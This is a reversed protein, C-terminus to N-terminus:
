RSPYVADIIPLLSSPIVIGLHKATRNNLSFQPNELYHLASSNQNQQENILEGLQKGMEYYNPYLSFLIGRKVDVPSHSFSTIGKDWTNEIYYSILSQRGFSLVDRTIWIADTDASSQEIIEKSKVAADSFGNASYILLEIGQELAARTAYAMHSQSYEPNMVARVRKIQPAVQNLISFYHKPHIYLSVGLSEDNAEGPPTAVAASYLQIDQNLNKLKNVVPSSLAIVRNSNQQSILRHLSQKEQSLTIPYDIFESFENSLQNKIGLRIQNFVAKYPNSVNPYLILTKSEAKIL